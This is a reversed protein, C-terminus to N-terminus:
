GSSTLHLEMQSVLNSLSGEDNTVNLTRTHYCRTCGVAGPQKRTHNALVHNRAESMTPFYCTEKFCTTCSLFKHHDLRLNFFSEPVINMTNMLDKVNSDEILFHGNIKQHIENVISLFTIIDKRLITSNNFFQSMVIVLQMPDCDHIGCLSSACHRQFAKLLPYCIWVKKFLEFELINSVPYIEDYICIHSIQGSVSSIEPILDERRGVEMGLLFLIFDKFLYSNMRRNTIMDQVCPLNENCQVIFKSPNSCARRPVFELEPTKSERHMMLPPDEFDDTDDSENLDILDPIRVSNIREDQYKLMNVFRRLDLSLHPSMLDLARPSNYVLFMLAIETQHVTKFNCNTNKCKPFPCNRETNLINGLKSKCEEAFVPMDKLHKNVHKTITHIKDWGSSSLEWHCIPCKVKEVPPIIDEQQLSCVSLIKPEVPETCKKDPFNTKMYEDFSPYLNKLLNHSTYGHILIDPFIGSFQCPVTPCKYVSETYAEISASGLIHLILALNRILRGKNVCEDVHLLFFKEQYRSKCNSCERLEFSYNPEVFFGSKKLDEYPWNNHKCFNRYITNIKKHFYAYHEQILHPNMFGPFGCNNQPCMSIEMGNVVLRKTKLSEIKRMESDVFYRMHKQLLHKQLAGVSFAFDSECGPFSCKYIDKGYLDNAIVYYLIAHHSFFVHKVFADESPYTGHIKCQFTNGVKHDRIVFSFDKSHLHCEYIHLVCLAREEFKKGCYVCEGAATFDEVLKKNQEFLKENPHSTSSILNDLPRPNLDPVKNQLKGIQVPVTSISSVIAPLDPCLKHSIKKSPKSGPKLVAQVTSPIRIDPAIIKKVNIVPTNSNVPVTTSKKLVVNNISTQSQPISTSSIPALISRNNNRLADQKSAADQKFIADQKTGARLKSGAPQKTVVKQSSIVPQNTSSHQYTTAHKHTSAHQTSLVHQNTSAHHITTAHQITSAKHHIPAYQNTSTPQNTTVLHNTSALLTATAHQNTSAHQNTTARQNSTHKTVSVHNSLTDVVHPQDNLSQSVQNSILKFYDLWFKTPSVMQIVNIPKLVALLYEKSLTRKHEPPLSLLVIQACVSYYQSENLDTQSYIDKKLGVEM